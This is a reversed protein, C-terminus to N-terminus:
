IGSKLLPNCEPCIKRNGKSKAFSPQTKIGSAHIATLDNNRIDSDIGYGSLFDTHMMQDHLHLELTCAEEDSNTYVAPLPTIAKKGHYMEHSVYTFNVVKSGSEQKVTFAPSRYDGTGYVPYEQKTCQMNLVGPEPICVSTLPRSMEEHLHTFDERDRIAKGYYLNELQGNEMIRIIYSVEKNYLHFTKTEQHFLIGM